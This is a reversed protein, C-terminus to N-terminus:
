THFHEVRLYITTMASTQLPKYIESHYQTGYIENEDYTINNGYFGQLFSMEQDYVYFM